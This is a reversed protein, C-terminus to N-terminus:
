QQSTATIYINSYYVGPPYSAYNALTDGLRVFLGYNTIGVSITTYSGKVNFNDGSGDTSAMCGKIVGSSIQVGLKYDIKKTADIEHTLWDHWFVVDVGSTCQLSWSAIRLGTQNTETSLKQYDDAHESGVDLCFAYATTYDLSASLSINKGIVGTVELGKPGRVVSEGFSLSLVLFFFIQIACLRKKM